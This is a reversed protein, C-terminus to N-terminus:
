KMNRNTVWIGYLVSVVSKTIFFRKWKGDAFNQTKIAEMDFNIISSFSNFLLSVIVIATFFLFSIILTKKWFVSTKIKELFTM